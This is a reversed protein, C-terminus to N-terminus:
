SQGRSGRAAQLLAVAPEIAVSLGAVHRHMMEDAIGIGVQTKEIVHNALRVLDPLVEAGHVLDEVARHMAAEDPALVRAGDGGVEVPADVRGSSTRVELGIRRRGGRGLLLCAVRHQEVRQRRLDIEVLVGHAVRQLGRHGNGVAPGLESNGLLGAEM